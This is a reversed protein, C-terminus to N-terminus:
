PSTAGEIEEETACPKGTALMCYDNLNRLASKFARQVEYTTHGIRQGFAYTARPQANMSKNAAEVILTNKADVFDSHKNGKVNTKFM